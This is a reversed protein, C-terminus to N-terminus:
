YLQVKKKRNPDGLTVMFNTKGKEYGGVVFPNEKEFNEFESNSFCFCFIERVFARIFKRIKVLAKITPNLFTYLLPNLICNVIHLAQFVYVLYFTWHGYETKDLSLRLIQVCYYPLRCFIFVLMLMIIIKFTRIKKEVRIDKYKMLKTSYQTSSSAATTESSKMNTSSSTELETANRENKASVPKRHKWVLAAINYYFWLFVLFNPVFILVVMCIMYIRMENKKFSVCIYADEKEYGSELDTDDYYYITIKKFDFFYWM